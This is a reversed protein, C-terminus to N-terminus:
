YGNLAKEFGAQVLDYYKQNRFIEKVGRVSALSAKTSSM